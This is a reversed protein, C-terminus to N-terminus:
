EASRTQHTKTILVGERAWEPVPPLEVKAITEGHIKIFAARGDISRASVMGIALTRLADVDGSHCKVTYLATQAVKDAPPVKSTIDAHTISPYRLVSFAWAADMFSSLDIDFVRFRALVLEADVKAKDAFRAAVETLRAERAIATPSDSKVRDGNVCDYCSGSQVYRYTMHGNKCPRGTFYTNEGDIMARKRTKINM